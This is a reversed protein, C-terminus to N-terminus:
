GFKHILLMAKQIVFCEGVDRSYNLCVVCAQMYENPRVVQTEASIVDFTSGGNPFLYHM